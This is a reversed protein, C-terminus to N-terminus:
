LRANAYADIFQDSDHPCGARPGGAALRHEQKETIWRVTGPEAGHGGDAAYLCLAVLKGLPTIALAANAKGCNGEECAVAILADEKEVVLAAADLSEVFDLAEEGAAAVIAESVLPEEFFSVCAVPEFPYKGIHAPLGTTSPADAMGFLTMVALTTSCFMM